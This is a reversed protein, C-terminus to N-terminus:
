RKPRDIEGADSDGDKPEENQNRKQREREAQDLLDKEIQSQVEAQEAAKALSFESDFGAAFKKLEGAFTSIGSKKFNTLSADFAAAKRLVVARYSEGLEGSKEIMRAHVEDCKEALVSITNARATKVRDPVAGSNEALAVELNKKSTEVVKKQLSVDLKPVLIRLFQPKSKSFDAHDKEKKELAKQAEELEKRAAAIPLVYLNFDSQYREAATFFDALPEALSESAPAPTSGATVAAVGGSGKKNEDELAAVLEQTGEIEPLDQLRGDLVCRISHDLAGAAADDLDSASPASSGEEAPLLFPELPPQPAVLQPAAAPTTYQTERVDRLGIGFCRLLNRLFNILAALLRLSFRAADVMIKALAVTTKYLPSPHVDFMENLKSSTNALKGDITKALPSLDNTPGLALARVPQSQVLQVMPTDTAQNQLRAPPPSANGPAATETPIQKATDSEAFDFRHSIKPWSLDKAMTSAKIWEDAGVRRLKWGYVESAAGRRQFEAEVGLAVLRCQFDSLDTAKALADRVEDAAIPADGVRAARRASNEAAERDGPARPNPSTPLPNLKLEQTIKQSATRNKQYSHSDSVVQGAATIRSFFIHLHQHDTDSHLWAAHPADTAGHEALALDMAVKWENKSLVRDDPGPSLILHGVARNLNPKLKRLQGFEASIQRPTTGGFNSFTPPASPKEIRRGGQKTATSGARGGSRRLGPADSAAGPEMDALAHPLLLLEGASESVTRVSANHVLSLEPLHPLSSIRAPLQGGRLAPWYPDSVRVNKLSEINIQPRQPSKSLQSIYDLLGRGGSGLVIKLIM